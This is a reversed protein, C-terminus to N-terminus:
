QKKFRSPKKPRAFEILFQLYYAAAWQLLNFRREGGIRPPESAPIEAVRYGYRAARASMLPEWSLKRHGIGFLTEVFNFAGDDALELKDVMDKRYARFIVLSDRYRGGFLVNITRTFLWNGFGTLLSDDESRAGGTYRSAIVLDYGDEIRALLEPIKEPLSNGDPSFTLVVEGEIMPWVEIYGRRFGPRSQVHVTMGQAKAWEVTGDTSGGDCLIIQDVWDPDVKPMIAKMGDIENPAM